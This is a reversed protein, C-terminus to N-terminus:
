ITLGFIGALASLVMGAATAGVTAIGIASMTQWFSLLFGNRIAQFFISFSFLGLIVVPILGFYMAIPFLLDVLSSTVILAFLNGKGDWFGQRALWWFLIRYATYISISTILTMVILAPISAGTALMNINSAICLAVFISWVLWTSALDYRSIPVPKLSLQFLIISLM